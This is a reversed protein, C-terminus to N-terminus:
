MLRKLDIIFSTIPRVYDKMGPHNAANIYRPSNDPLYLVARHSGIETIKDDSLDQDHTIVHWLNRIKHRNLLDTDTTYAQKWRERFTRKCSIGILWSDKCRVWRDVELGTTFHEPEHTTKIGFFDLIFSTVSELSGGARGKRKQGLRREFEQCFASLIIAKEEENELKLEKELYNRLSSYQQVVEAREKKLCGATGLDDWLNIITALGEEGKSELLTKAVSKVFIKDDSPVQALSVNIPTMIYECTLALVSYDQITILKKKLEDCLNELQRRINTGERRGELIVNSITQHLEGVVFEEVEEKLRKITSKIAHSLEIMKDSNKGIGGYKDTSILMRSLWYVNDYPSTKVISKLREKNTM